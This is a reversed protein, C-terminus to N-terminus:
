ARSWHELFRTRQLKCLECRGSQGHKENMTWVYVLGLRRTAVNSLITIIVGLINQM